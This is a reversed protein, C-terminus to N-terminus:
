LPHTAQTENLISADWDKWVPELQQSRLQHCIESVPRKDDIEFQGTARCNDKSNKKEDEIEVRRGKVTLHLDDSGAGTYGGPGTQSEASIHTIGLPFLHNRLEAPERTSLVISVNPFCVRFAFILRALNRDDLSLDPNPSYEYNGAYPRM